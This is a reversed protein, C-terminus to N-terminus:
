LSVLVHNGFRIGQIPLVSFEPLGAPTAQNIAKRTPIKRIIAIKNNDAILYIIFGDV